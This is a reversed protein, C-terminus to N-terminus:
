TRRVWKEHSWFIPNSETVPFEKKNQLKWLKQDFQPFFADAIGQYDVRTIYLKDALPLSEMYVTEGGCIFVEDDGNSEAMKLADSLSGVMECGQINLHTTRSLVITTRGPLPRGISEFTKRGMILHHGMTLKKFMKLEDPIRWLLRNELGIEFNKGVAVSISVKM